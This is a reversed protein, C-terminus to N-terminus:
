AGNKTITTLPIVYAVNSGDATIDRRVEPGWAINDAGKTRDIAELLVLLKTDLADERKAPDTKPEVLILSFTVTRHSSPAEPTRKITDLVLVLYPNVGLAPPDANYDLLVWGKPLLPKLIAIIDKRVTSM